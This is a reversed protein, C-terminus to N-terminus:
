STVTVSIRSMLSTRACWPIFLRERARTVAVYAIKRIQEETWRDGAELWDLGFVFVCAYDFGKVSHITSITVSDTTIDYSQKARYDASVWRHLIGEADLAKGILAPAIGEPNSAPTRMTYLVAIELSNSLSGDAKKQQDRV